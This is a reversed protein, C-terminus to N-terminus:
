GGEVVVEKVVRRTYLLVTGDKRWVRVEFGNDSYEKEKARANEESDYEGGDWLYKKGEFYRVQEPM